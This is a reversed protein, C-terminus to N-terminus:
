REPSDRVGEPFKNVARSYILGQDDILLAANQTSPDPSSKAYEYAIQLLKRLDLNHVPVGKFFSHFSALFIKASVM